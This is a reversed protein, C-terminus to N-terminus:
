KRELSQHCFMCDDWDVYTPINEGRVIPYICVGTINDESECGWVVGSWQVQGDLFHVNADDLIIQRIRTLEDMANELHKGHTM